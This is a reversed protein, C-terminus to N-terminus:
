QHPHLNCLSGCSPLNVQPIYYHHIDSMFKISTSWLSHLEETSILHQIQFQYPVNNIILNFTKLKQSISNIKCIDIANLQLQKSCHLVKQPLM